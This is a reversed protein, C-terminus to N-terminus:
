RIRGDAGQWLDANSGMAAKLNDTAATLKAVVDDPLKLKAAACSKELQTLKTAGAIVGTVGEQRALWALALDAMPIACEESVAKISALTSFLLEEHGEEGACPLRM